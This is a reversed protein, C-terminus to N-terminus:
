RSQYIKTKSRWDGPDSDGGTLREVYVDIEVQSWHPSNGLMVPHPLRGAVIERELEAISLDLYAAATRRKMMRPWGFTM